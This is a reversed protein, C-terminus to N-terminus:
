KERKYCLKYTRNKTQDQLMQAKNAKEQLLFFDAFCDVHFKRDEECSLLSLMNAPIKAAKIIHRYYSKYDQWHIYKLM